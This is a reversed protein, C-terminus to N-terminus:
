NIASSMSKSCDSKGGLKTKEERYWFFFVTSNFIQPNQNEIFNGFNQFEIQNESSKSSQSWFNCIKRPSNKDERSMIQNDIFLSEGIILMWLQIIQYFFFEWIEFFGLFLSQNISENIELSRRTRNAYVKEM